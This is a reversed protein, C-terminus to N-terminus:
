LGLVQPHRRHGPRLHDPVRCDVEVFTDTPPTSEGYADNGWCVARGTESLGCSHSYGASLQVLKDTPAQTQGEDDAGWCSPRAM